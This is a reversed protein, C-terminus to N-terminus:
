NKNLEELKTNLRYINTTLTDISKTLTDFKEVIHEYKNDHDNRLVSIDLRNQMANIEVKELRSMTKNLFYGIITIGLGFGVFLLNTVIEM